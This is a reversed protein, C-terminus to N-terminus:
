RVIEVLGDQVLGEFFSLVDRECLSRDVRYKEVLYDCVRSIRQPHEISAWIQNGLKNFAYYKWTRTSLIVSENDLNGTVQDNSRVVVSSMGLSSPKMM